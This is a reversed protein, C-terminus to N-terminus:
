SRIGRRTRQGRRITQGALVPHLREGECIRNRPAQNGSPRRHLGIHLRSLERDIVATKRADNVEQLDDSFGPTM